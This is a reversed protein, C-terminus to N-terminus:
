EHRLAEVPNLSSAHYAPYLGSVVGLIVAFTVSGMALSPTVLFLQTGSSGAAANLGTAILWGLALGSVGGLLGVVAAEAVFQGMIQGDSAGIAKRIGIERTRELVSMTMTNIVSLGGVLLSIMGIGTIIATLTGVSAAVGEIFATPGTAKVDPMKRNIKAALQDADTGPKAYAVIGTALSREDLSQKLTAPLSDHLIRQADAMPISVGSDPATLTPELIGVVEFREDRITVSRGVVAGLKAVVDSGVVCVRREGPRIDRGSAFSVPFTEYGRERLDTASVTPVSGMSVAPPDKDLLFGVQASARAVGDIHELEAVKRVNIPMTGYFGTAGAESISVKGKYYTVGGDVLLTLKEAMAGMVVLALVGITIGFITLFARLRRRFINRLLRM